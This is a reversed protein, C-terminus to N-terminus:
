VRFGSKVIVKYRKKFKDWNKKDNQKVYTFSNSLRKSYYEEGKPFYKGYYESANIISLRSYEVAKSIDNIKKFYQSAWYYLSFMHKYSNCKYAFIMAKLYMQEMKDLKELDRNLVAEDGLRHAEMEYLMVLGYYNNSMELEEELAKLFKRPLVWDIKNEKMKKFDKDSKLSGQKEFQGYIFRLCAAINAYTKPPNNPFNMSLLTAIEKMQKNDMYPLMHYIDRGPSGVYVGGYDAGDIKIISNLSSDSVSNGKMRMSFIGWSVIELLQKYTIHSKNKM